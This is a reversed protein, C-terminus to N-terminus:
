LHNHAVMHVSSISGHYEPLVALVQLWLDKDGADIDTILFNNIKLFIFYKHWEGKGSDLGECVDRRTRKWIWTRKEHIQTVCLTHICVCLCM